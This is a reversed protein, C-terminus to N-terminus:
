SRSKLLRPLDRASHVIRLVTVKPIYSGIPITRIDPGFEPRPQAGEPLRELLGIRRLVNARFREAAGPDDAAIRADIQDLDRRARDRFVVEAM